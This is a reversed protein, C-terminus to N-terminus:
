SNLISFFLIEMKNKIINIAPNKSISEIPKKIGKNFENNSFLISIGNIVFMNSLKLLSKTFSSIIEIAIININMVKKIFFRKM